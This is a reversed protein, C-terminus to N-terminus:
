DLKLRYKDHIKRKLKKNWFLLINLTNKLLFTYIDFIIFIPRYKIGTYHRTLYDYMARQFYNLHFKRVFDDRYKDQIYLTKQRIRPQELATLSKSNVRYQYINDPIYELNGNLAIRCWYDYDEACFTNRDYKGIKDAISKRYMFAAGVNCRYALIAPTKQAATKYLFNGNEDMFDMTASVMDTDPHNDLYNSLVSLWNPRAINDDSTWTFYEGRAADFGVNLSEPLKKNTKNHIVKIRPDMDAFSKAIKLSDDTSCDDVIILEWDQVSQALVSEISQRLFRAGNYVPLVISIKPKKQSL